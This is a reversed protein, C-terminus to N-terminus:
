NRLLMGCALFDTKGFRFYVEFLRWKALRWRAMWTSLTSKTQFIIVRAALISWSLAESQSDGLGIQACQPSSFQLFLSGSKSDKGMM